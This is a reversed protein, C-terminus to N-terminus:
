VKEGPGRMKFEELRGGREMRVKSAYLKNLLITSLREMEGVMSDVKTDFIGAAISTPMAIALGLITTRLAQAIGGSFSKPDGLGVTAMVGFIEDLGLVTGFLGLLPAISAIIELINLNRELRKAEEKGAVQIEHLKEEWSLHMNVLTHKIINSFPGRIVQCKSFAMPVDGVDRIDQILRVLEPRIVQRRRLSLAREIIVALAVVSCILLPYMVPGGGLIWQM